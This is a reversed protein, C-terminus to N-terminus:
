KVHNHKGRYSCTVKAVRMTIDCITYTRAMAAAADSPAKHLIRYKITVNNQSISLFLGM